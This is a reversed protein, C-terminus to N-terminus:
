MSPANGTSAGSRAMGELEMKGIHWTLGISASTTNYTYEMNSGYYPNLSQSGFRATHLIDSVNFFLSLRRDFFDASCGLDVTLSPKSVTMLSLSRSSYNVNAFLQLTKGVKAWVNLRSTLALMSTDQVEGPRYEVTYGYSFVNANFRINVFPKPRWTANLQGGYTHSNGINRPQIYSVMRGFFPSYAVDTINQVEDTNARLYGSLGLSGWQKYFTWGGELNHSFSPRLLPNGTSYDDEKYDVFSTLSEAEPSTFRRTYSLTLSHGSQTSYSLHLSPVLSWFATDIDYQATPVALDSFELRKWERYLRAGAKATLPGFHHQLTVYGNVNHNGSIYTHTRADDRVYRGAITSLTDWVSADRERMYEADVGLEVQGDKSYPKM